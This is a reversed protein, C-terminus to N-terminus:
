AVIYIDIYINLKNNYLYTFITIDLFTNLIENQIILNYKKKM